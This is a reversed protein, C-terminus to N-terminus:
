WNVIMAFFRLAMSRRMEAQPKARAANWVTVLECDALRCVIQQTLYHSEGECRPVRIDLMILFDIHDTKRSIKASDIQAIWSKPQHVRCACADARISISVGVGAFCTCAQSDFCQRDITM